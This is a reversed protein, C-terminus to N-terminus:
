LAPRQCPARQLRKWCRLPRRGEELRLSRADWNKWHRAFTRAADFRRKMGISRRITAVAKTYANGLAVYFEPGSPQYKELDQQLQPIGAKLNAGESVQALDLYLQNDPTIPLQPPYYLTVDGHYNGERPVEAEPLPTLLDGSTRRRQIYHDTMVAHVVDETRRKPM